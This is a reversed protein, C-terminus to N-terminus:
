ELQEAAAGMKEAQERKESSLKEIHKRVEAFRDEYQTLILRM